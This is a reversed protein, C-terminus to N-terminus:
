IALNINEKSITSTNSYQSVPYEPQAKRCLLVLISSAILLVCCAIIIGAIGGNSLGGSSKRNPIPNFDTTSNGQSNLIDVEGAKMYICIKSRNVEGCSLHLNFMFDGEPFCRLRYDNINKNIVQCNVEKLSNNTTNSIDDFIFPIEDVKEPDFNIQNISLLNGKLSFSSRTVYIMEGNDILIFDDYNADQINQLSLQTMYSAYMQEIIEGDFKFDNNSSVKLVNGKAPCTCNYVYFNQNNKSFTCTVEQMDPTQLNRLQRYNINVTFTIINPRNINKIIFYIMWTLLNSNVQKFSSIGVLQINVDKAGDLNTSSPQSEASGMSEAKINIDEDAFQLYRTKLKLEKSSSKHDSPLGKTFNFVSILILILEFLNNM